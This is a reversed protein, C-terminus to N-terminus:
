KRLVVVERGEQPLNGKLKYEAMTGDPKAGVSKAITDFANKDKTPILILVRPEFEDILTQAVKADDTPLVLVDVDGVMEMQKDTWSQLPSSLFGVRVGDEHLVYSVQQGEGHGIGRISVGAMNYEGPWSVVGERAAEEPVTLLALGGKEPEGFATISKEAGSVRVTPGGLSTFTLAM